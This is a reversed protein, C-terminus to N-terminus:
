RGVRIEPALELTAKKMCFAYNGAGLGSYLLWMTKGDASMWPTPFKHHYTRDKGSWYDDYYVISWPGWPEPAEFVGLAGTHTIDQSNPDVKHSTALIYRKLAANYTISIRQVGKPDTFIPKRRFLDPTWAAKGAKDLGAFFEWKARNEVEHKPARAMVINPWYHYPNDNDQSVIYVYNDRGGQYNKGYQVFEPCGFTDAFHWDAWTWTKMFDKSWALKSNTFDRGVNINRVFMYMTDDVLVLGSSKIGTPGGGQPTDLNSFIDEGRYNPFTGIMKAFGITLAPQRNSFGVGDGYTTYLTGDKSQVIPWNDGAGADRSSAAVNPIRIPEADWTLKTIVKSRPYSLEAAAAVPAVTQKSERFHPALELTAKKMCFAYNGAGLGSYLLWMTKGDASMWPTPFKHHYTRDNGSWYDDYYVTSWPGWPEPAEFVGLAGTHIMDAGSTGPPVGQLNPDVKHSTALFYRKLAANYTISIRQVGKPDTFIAKRRYLDPTWVPKGAKDTGGFFEWRARNEVEAKPARAMVIDPWYHYPNDNDQSVIYVYQDRAGQYNKGFQVFEPCGFTDSFYWDAWKWTKMYDNSFALKSNTFDRAISINRVFMYMKGDVLVLGSSKIGTPGGGEPTDLTSFIDEGKYNPFTGTMKAFGITLPPKRKSFGVGDGYTTYLTGDESQVIPWNDGSGDTIRVPDADWTLKSILKSPPYPPEAAEALAASVFVGVILTLLYKM